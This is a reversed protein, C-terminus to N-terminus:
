SPYLVVAFTAGAAASSLAKGFGAGIASAQRARGAAVNSTEVVNGFTVAAGATVGTVIGTTAVWVTAGLAAGTVAVGIVAVSGNAAVTGVTNAGTVVVVDKANVATSTTFPYAVYNDGNASGVMYQSTLVELSAAAAPAVVPAGIVANGGTGDIKLTGSSMHISTAPSATGIGLRKNTNDWFLNSNNQSVLGGSGGFLMSGVTIYPLNFATNVTGSSVYFTAGSQLTNQDLILNGGSGTQTISNFYAAGSSTVSAQVVANSDQFTVNSNGGTTTMKMDVDGAYCFGASAVWLSLVTVFFFAQGIIGQSGRKNVRANICQM